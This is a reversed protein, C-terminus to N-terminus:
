CPKGGKCCVYGNEDVQGARHMALLDSAKLGFSKQFHPMDKFGNWDGGWEWGHAKFIRVVEMWDSLGDKDFDTVTDWSAYDHHGDVEVLLFIDVALGYNHMSLGAPANTIKPGPMTRGQAYLEAQKEFTRHIASFGCTAKGTLSQVIQTYIARLEERVAPHAKEIRKTTHIDPIRM